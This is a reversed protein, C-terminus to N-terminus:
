NKWHMCVIVIFHDDHGLAPDTMNQWIEGLYQIRAVYYKNPWAIGVIKFQDIIIYKADLNYAGTSAANGPAIDGIRIREQLLADAGAAEYIASDTGRGICPKPNATNVIADAKVETIDNRIIQFPM